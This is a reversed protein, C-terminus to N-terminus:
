LQVGSSADARGTLLRVALAAAAGAALLTLAAMIFALPGKPLRLFITVDGYSTLQIGHRLLRWAIMVLVVTSIGAAIFGQIRQARASIQETILSVIIHGNELTVLPLAVFIVIALSIETVEFAGPIPRNFLYRGFVDAVTITMMVFILLAAISGLIARMARLLPDSGAPTGHAQMDNM